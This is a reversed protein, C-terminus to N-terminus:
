GRAHATLVALLLVSNRIRGALAAEVAEALPVWRLVIEAEEDTREFAVPTASLGRAEFITITEDSGGPSTAYTILERWESAVLDVEEALEREAASQRDEGDIDLLGAPLEWDRSRIPHRYQNILLVRDEDDRALVAVAGTHDMYDRVLEHDGFRFRDRRIDWVRGEYVLESAVVEAPDPLDALPGDVLAARAEASLTM